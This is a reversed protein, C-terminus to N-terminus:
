QGILTSHNQGALQRATTALAIVDTLVCFPRAEICAFRDVTLWIPFLIIGRYPNLPM